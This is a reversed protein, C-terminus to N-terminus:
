PGLEIEVYKLDPYSLMYLHVVEYAYLTAFPGGTAKEPARDNYFPASINLIMNTNSADIQMKLDVAESASLEQGNWSHAIKFSRIRFVSFKRCELVAMCTIFSQFVCGQLADSWVTSMTFQTQQFLISSNFPQFSELKHSFSKLM